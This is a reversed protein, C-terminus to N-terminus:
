PLSEFYPADGEPVEGSYRRKPDKRFVAFEEALSELELDAERRHKKQETEFATAASSALNAYEPIEKRPVFRRGKCVSSVETEDGADVVRIGSRPDFTEKCLIMAAMHTKEQKLSEEFREPDQAVESAKAGTPLNYPKADYVFRDAQGEPIGIVLFDGVKLRCYKRILNWGKKFFYFYSESNPELGGEDLVARYQELLPFAQEKEGFHNIFGWSAASELPRVGSTLGYSMSLLDSRREKEERPLRSQADELSNQCLPDKPSRLHFHNELYVVKRFKRVVKSAAPMAHLFSTQGEEKFAVQTKLISEVLEPSEYMNKGPNAESGIPQNMENQFDIGQKNWLKMYAYDVARHLSRRPVNLCSQAMQAARHTLQPIAM